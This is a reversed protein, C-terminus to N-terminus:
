ICTRTCVQHPKSISGDVEANELVGAAAGSGSAFSERATGTITHARSRVLHEPTDRKVAASELVSYDARGALELNKTEDSNGTMELGDTGVQKEAEFSEHANGNVSGQPYELSKKGTSKGNKWDEVFAEVAPKVKGHWPCKCKRSEIAKWSLNKGVRSKIALSKMSFVIAHSVLFMVVLFSVVTCFQLVDKWDYGHSDCVCYKKM